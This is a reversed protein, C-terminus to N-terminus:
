ILISQSGEAALMERWEDLSVFMPEGVDPPHVWWGGALESLTKLWRYEENTTAYEWLIYELDRYWGAYWEEESIARFCRLLSVKVAEKLSRPREFGVIAFTSSANLAAIAPENLYHALVLRLADKRGQWYANESGLDGRVVQEEAHSLQELLFLKFPPDHEDRLSDTFDSM